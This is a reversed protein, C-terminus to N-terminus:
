LTSFEVGPAAPKLKSLGAYGAVVVGALVVSIVTTRIIKRKKAGKRQIDM